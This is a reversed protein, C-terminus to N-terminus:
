KLDRARRYLRWTDADRAFEHVFLQWLRAANRNAQAWEAPRQGAEQLFMRIAHLGHAEALFMHLRNARDLSGVSLMNEMALEAAALQVVQHGSRALEAAQDRDFGPSALFAYLQSRVAPVNATAAAQIVPEVNVFALERVAEQANLRRATQQLENVRSDILRKGAVPDASAVSLWAPREMSLDLVERWTTYGGSPQSRVPMLLLAIGGLIVALVLVTRVLRGFVSRVRARAAQREAARQARRQEREARRAHRRAEREGHQLHWWRKLSAVGDRWPQERVKQQLQASAKRAIAKANAMAERAIKGAHTAAEGAAKRFGAYPDDAPPTPPPSAGTAAPGPPPASTVAATTSGADQWAAAGASAPAGLAAILEHVSQFRQAPDKALCRELAARERPGLEAPFAPPEHEHKRLVEWETDGKFPVDGCVIEFLMVGLSYIDSRADGRRQLMEPAMYYPTGRGMSLSGRSHTVLKSLGYDGVRAVGGKLFVNAPKLDFHM